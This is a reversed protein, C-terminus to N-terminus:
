NYRRNLQYTDSAIGKNSADVNLLHCRSGASLSRDFNDVHVKVSYMNTEGDPYPSVYYATGNARRGEDVFLITAEHDLVIEDCRGKLRQLFGLLFDALM